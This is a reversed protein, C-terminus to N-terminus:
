EGPKEVVSSVVSSLVPSYSLMQPSVAWPEINKFLEIGGKRLAAFVLESCFWKGSSKRSAQRRSVFRLVSSYDYPKALQKQLFRMVDHYQEANAVPVDYEEYDHRKKEEADWLMARVGAGERAEYLVDGNAIAAHSFEGRTQWKILRSLLGKGRFLVVRLDKTETDATMIETDRPRM